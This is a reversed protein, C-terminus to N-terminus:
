SNEQYSAAGFSALSSSTQHCKKSLSAPPKQGNEPWGQQNTSSLTSIINPSKSSQSVLCKSGKLNPNINFLMQKNPKLHLLIYKERSLKISSTQKHFEFEHFGQFDMSSRHKLNFNRLFLFTAISQHNKISVILAAALSSGSKHNWCCSKALKRWSTTGCNKSNWTNKQKRKVM